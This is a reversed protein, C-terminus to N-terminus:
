YLNNLVFFKFITDRWYSDFLIFCLFYYIIQNINLKVNYVIIHVFIKHM